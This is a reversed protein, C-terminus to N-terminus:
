RKMTKPSWPEPEDMTKSAKRWPSPKPPQKADVNGGNGSTTAPSDRAQQPLALKAMKELDAGPSAQQDPPLLYSPQAAWKADAKAALLKIQEQRVIDQQQEEISPAQERTHRLWQIWAPSLKVDSHQVNYTYKVIRRM